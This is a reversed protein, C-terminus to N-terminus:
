CHEKCIPCIMYDRDLIYGCCSWLNAVNTINEISDGVEFKAFDIDCNYGDWEFCAGDETVYDTILGISNLYDVKPQNTKLIEM